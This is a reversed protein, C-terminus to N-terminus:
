PVGGDCWWGCHWKQCLLLCCVSGKWTSERPIFPFIVAFVGSFSSSNCCPLWALNWPRPSSSVPAWKLVSLGVFRVLGWYILALGPPSAVGRLWKMGECLKEDGCPPSSQFWIFLEGWKGALRAGENGGQIHTWRLEPVNWGSNTGKSTQLFLHAIAVLFLEM